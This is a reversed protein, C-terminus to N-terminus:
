KRNKIGENTGGDSRCLVAMEKELLRYVNAVLFRVGNGYEKYSLLLYLIGRIRVYNKVYAIPNHIALVLRVITLVSDNLEDIIKPYRM